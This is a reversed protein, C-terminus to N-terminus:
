KEIFDCIREAISQPDLGFKKYLEGTSGHEIFTDPWGLNLVRINSNTLQAALQQGFGGIVVNDELTVICKTREASEKIAELDLPKVIRVNVCGADINRKNLIAAAEQATSLMAGVAWIEVDTGPKLLLSEAKFEPLDVEPAAGRPYRIACPSDHTLAYEMMQELENKDAPALVTMNPIHTLYSLDLVGHHTEGDAGVIGARDIGFVVPLNQLCVDEVIQDYARQLFTSYVAVVPRYGRTAMGAAFTVAHAEAIGVNFTRKPFEDQFYNLGTGELMAASIAVIKDNDQAMKALKKGFVASYSPATSSKLAVGTSPDFPGTGHFKSPNTEANIYGKGKQTVVHVLVPGKVNKVAELTETLASLSHGDIPGFYKFGLSEFMAGELMAYKITDRLHTLRDVAATGVGPIKSVSTKVKRKFDAYKQSSRLKSLHTSMGGTNPEISMGNDNLIVIMNDKSAGVNNLAEYALGGTLAGDGIIAAVHYKDGALDRAAAMGAAASISTSSHGTDFTDYPSEKVKPFGSMGGFQRLTTFGDARGTLIKHVYSQHGVDWILKDTPTDFVKHMAITLEVVGLNSALHGGTKSINEILFDRIQYSLLEMEELTMSKLEQPFAYEQLQKMM